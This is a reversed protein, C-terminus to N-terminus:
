ATRNMPRNLIGNVPQQVHFNRLIRAAGPGAVGRLVERDQALECQVQDAVIRSGRRPLRLIRTWRLCAPQSM